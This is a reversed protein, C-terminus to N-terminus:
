SVARIIRCYDSPADIAIRRIRVGFAQEVRRLWHLVSQAFERRVTPDLAQVNGGGAPPPEFDRRLPLIELADDAGRVCVCVPLRKGIACAIDVGVFADRLQTM